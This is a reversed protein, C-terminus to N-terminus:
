LKKGAPKVPVAAKVTTGQGTSIFELSGGLQRLREQMGAVGIGTAAITLKGGKQLDGPIGCGRDEVELVTQGKQRMLRVKAVKSGSHRHVNSLSEQAVRFLAIEVEQPLRAGGPPLDFDVTIGSRATFRSIFWRLAAVLGISDLDPPHLLHSLNRIEDSAQAALTQSEVLLEAWEPDDVKGDGAMRALNMALVTLTQSTSDHLDRAIARREEDRLRLVRASLERLAIQEKELQALVHKRQTIDRNIEMIAEPKGEDGRQLVQRSAMIIESGDRAAHTLEGEWSGDHLLKREMEELAAAPQTKLLSHTTKGLVEGRTWGYAREAGHNWSKIVGSLDRVIIVDNALDLLKAQEEILHRSRDRETIDRIAVLILSPSGGSRRLERANLLLTRRGILPFDHGLEYDQIEKGRPLVDRLLVLLRPINWQGNGLEYLFQGRIESPSLEFHEFFSRNASKVRLNADLVLLSEWMMEIIVDSYLRSDTAELTLYDIDLLTIVAGEIREEVTKYPRAMLMHSHGQRDTVKQQRSSGTEIAEKVMKELGPFDLEFRLDTLPRGIDAPFLHLIEQAGQTFRRIRLDSGLVIMPLTINSIVNTLDNNSTALDANRSSLEDNLTSLEENSAQLEEKSAELEENATQLEENNSQVEENAARLEENSTELQDIADQLAEQSESLERRLDLDEGREGPRAANAAHLPGAAKGRARAPTEERFLILFYRRNSPLLHLPRAEITVERAAIERQNARAKLKRSKKSKSDIKKGMRAAGAEPSSEIRVGRKIVPQDSKLAHHIIARLDLALGAHAVKPLHLSAPGPKPDLYPGTHGHFRVIELEDNVIIAAPTYDALLIRDIEKQLDFRGIELEPPPGAKAPPLSGGEKAAIQSGPYRAGAEHIQRFSEDKRAYLKNEKNALRFLESYGEISESKGLLLFGRPLLAYHFVPILKQQLSRDLYILLNRCSILDLRSFPPDKIVDQRAFVCMERIFPDIQFDGNVRKFFRSLREPSVASVEDESYRGSRAKNLAAESIDTAFIQVGIASKVSQLFELACIALSYAEEGTSCGPTWLRLPLSPHGAMVKPFVERQLIAFAEPERFFSTVSILMEQFLSAIEARNGKLLNAYDALSATNKVVMRRTIRRLVTAPKYHGFDVGSSARLMLLIRMLEDPAKSILEEERLKPSALISHRGLTALKRAIEGPTLVFDACGSAIASHPMGDFKASAESQAFTIGGESKIAKLGLTGDSGTGSLVVGIAKNRCDQALATLFRNVPLHPMLSAANRRKLKLVGASISLDSSPPIVYVHDPKVKELDTAETVPIKAARALLETLMSQHQPALHQVVIFGMGTDAPLHKLLDTLAELGGASAGIGVTPCLYREAPAASQKPEALTKEAAKKM